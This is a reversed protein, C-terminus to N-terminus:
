ISFMSSKISDADATTSMSSEGAEDRDDWPSAGNETSEFSMETSRKDCSLRASLRKSRVVLQQNFPNCQQLREDSRSHPSKGSLSKTGPVVDSMTEISNEEVFMAFVKKKPRRPEFKSSIDPISHIQAVRSRNNRRKEDLILPCTKRRSSKRHSILDNIAHSHTAESSETSTKSKGGINDEDVSTLSEVPAGILLHSTTPEIRKSLRMNLNMRKLTQEGNLQNNSCRFSGSLNELEAM